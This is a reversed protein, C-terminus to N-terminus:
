STARKCRAFTSTGCVSERAKTRGRKLNARTQLAQHVTVPILEEGAAWKFMRRIRSVQRNISVRCWDADIMSGRVVKLRQPGFEVAPTNGYLRRLHSLASVTQHYEVTARGGKSYDTKAYKIYAAMVEAVTVPQDPEPPCGVVTPVGNVSAVITPTAAELM